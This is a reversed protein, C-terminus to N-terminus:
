GGTACIDPTATSPHNLHSGAVRGKDGGREEDGRAQGPTGSEKWPRAQGLVAPGRILDPTVSVSSPFRCVGGDIAEPSCGSRRTGRLCIPLACTRVVTVLACRTHRRRCSCFFFFMVMFLFLCTNLFFLSM